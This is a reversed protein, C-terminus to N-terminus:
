SPWLKVLWKVLKTKLFFWGKLIMSLLLLNLSFSKTKCQVAFLEPIAVSNALDWEVQSCLEEVLTEPSLVSHWVYSEDVGKLLYKMLMKMKVPHDFLIEEIKM